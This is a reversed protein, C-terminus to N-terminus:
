LEQYEATISVEFLRSLLAVDQPSDICDTLSSLSKSAENLLFAEIAVQVASGDYKQRCRSKESIFIFAKFLLEIPLRSDGLEELRVRGDKAQKILYLATIPGFISNTKLQFQRTLGDLSPTPLLFEHAM